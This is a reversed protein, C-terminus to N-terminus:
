KSFLRPLLTKADRATLIGAGVMCLVALGFLELAPMDITSSKAMTLRGVAIFIALAGLLGFIAAIRPDLPPRASKDKETSL